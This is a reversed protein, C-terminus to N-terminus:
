GKAQLKKFAKLYRQLINRGVDDIELFEIGSCYKQEDCPGIHVVKGRLEVLDEEFEITILLEQGLVLNIHTELLLGVESVNLTRAMGRAVPEGNEGLVVYDLLNLSAVRASKRHEQNAM